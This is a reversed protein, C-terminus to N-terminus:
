VNLANVLEIKKSQIEKSSLQSTGEIAIYTIDEFGLFGFVAKLYPKVFDMTEMNSFDAGYASVIVLKKDKLLGEYAATVTEGVRAINDIYAKLVSPISFNYMPTSVLVIDANQIEKILTNALKLEENMANTREERPVFTAEIYSQTLHPINTQNLNRTVTQLAKNKEKLKKEIMEALDKSHSGEERPSADIKLLKNM